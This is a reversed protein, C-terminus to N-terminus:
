SQNLSTCVDSHSPPTQPLLNDSLTPWLTVSVVLERRIPQVAERQCDGVYFGGVGWEEGVKEMRGVYIMMGDMLGGFEDVFKNCTSVVRKSASPGGRLEVTGTGEIEDVRALNPEGLSGCVVAPYHKDRFIYEIDGTSTVLM